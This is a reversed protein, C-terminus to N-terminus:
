DTMLNASIMIFDIDFCSKLMITINKDVCFCEIDFKNEFLCKSNESQSNKLSNLKFHNNWTEKCYTENVDIKAHYFVRNFVIIYVNRYNLQM